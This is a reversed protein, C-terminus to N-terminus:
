LRAEIIDNNNQECINHLTYNHKLLKRILNNMGIIGLKNFINSYIIGNDVKTIYIMKAPIYLLDYQENDRYYIAKNVIYM